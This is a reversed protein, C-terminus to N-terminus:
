VLGKDRGDTHVGNDTVNVEEMQKGRDNAEANKEKRIPQKPDSPSHFQLGFALLCLNQLRGDLPGSRGEPHM